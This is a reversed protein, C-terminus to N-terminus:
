PHYGAILAQLEDIAEKVTKATLGSTANDYYAVLSNLVLADIPEETNSADKSYGNLINYNNTCGYCVNNKLECVSGSDCQIGDGSNYCVNRAIFATSDNDLSIAETSCDFVENDTVIAAIVNDDIDIGEVAQKIKNRRIIGRSSYTCTGIMDIKIAEGNSAFDYAVNDEIIFDRCNHLMIGRSALGDGNIRNGSIVSKDCGRLLIAAGETGEKCAKYFQCDIFKVNDSNESPSNATEYNDGNISWHYAFLVASGAPVEDFTINHFTIKSVIAQHDAFTVSAGDWNNNSPTEGTVIFGSIIVDEAQHKIKFRACKPSYGIAARIRLKKGAPIDVANYSANTKVELLEGDNMANIATQLDGAGTTTLTSDPTQLLMADIEDRSSVGGGSGGGGGSAAVMSFARPFRM